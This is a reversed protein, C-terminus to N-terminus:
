NLKTQKMEEEEYIYNDDVVSLCVSIKKM